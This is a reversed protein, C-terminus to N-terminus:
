GGGPNPPGVPVYLENPFFDSAPDEDLRAYYNTVAVWKLAAPDIAIGALRAALERLPQLPVLFRLSDRADRYPPGWHAPGPEEGAPLRSRRRTGPFLVELLDRPLETARGASDFLLLRKYFRGGARHGYEVWLDVGLSPFVSVPPRDGPLGTAPNGDLDVVFHWSVLAGPVAAGRAPLHGRVSLDLVLFGPRLAWDSPRLAVLRHDLLAGDHGLVVQTARRFDGPGHAVLATRAGSIEVTGEALLVTTRGSLDDHTLRAHTGRIAVSGNPASIKLDTKLGSKKVEVKLTGFELHIESRITGAEATKRDIRVQALPEMRVVAGAADELVVESQYGTAVEDGEGLEDGDRLAAWEESGARRLDAEGKLSRVRFKVPDVDPPPAAEAPSVSVAASRIDALLPGLAPTGADHRLLDCAPDEGAGGAQSLVPLCIVALATLALRLPLGPM